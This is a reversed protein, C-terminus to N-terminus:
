DEEAVKGLYESTFNSTTDSARRRGLRVTRCSRENLPPCRGGTRNAILRTECRPATGGELRCVTWQHCRDM